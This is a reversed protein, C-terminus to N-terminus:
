PHPQPQNKRQELWRQFYAKKAAQEAAQPDVNELGFFPNGEIPPRRRLRVEVDLFQGARLVKLRVVHGPKLERIRQRFPEMAQNGGWEVGDLATVLDNMRLGSKEAPSNPVVQMVRVVNTQQKDEPLVINEDQMLIGVYGEGETEYQDDVLERLVALCRETVEPDEDNRSQQFLADMANKPKNRAWALLEIQANERDKFQESKLGDLLKAPIDAATTEVVIMVVMAAAIRRCLWVPYRQIFRLM